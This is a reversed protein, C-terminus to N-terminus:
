RLPYHYRGDKGVYCYLVPMGERKYYAEAEARQAAREAIEADIRAMNRREAFHHKDPDYEENKLWAIFADFKKFKENITRIGPWNREGNVAAYDTKRIDTPIEAKLRNAYEPNQFCHAEHVNVVRFSIERNCHRCRTGGQVVIRDYLLKPREVGHTNWHNYCNICRGKKSKGEPCHKGCNSCNCAPKKQAGM